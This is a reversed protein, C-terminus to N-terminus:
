RPSSVPFADELAARAADLEQRLAPRLGDAQAWDEARVAHELQLLVAALRSAALNASGGRLRHATALASDSDHVALADELAGVEATAERVFDRVVDALASGATRADMRQLQALLEPDLVGTPPRQTRATAAGTASKQELWRGTIEALRAPDVPKSVYDDMGADLCRQQDEPMASATMAVIPTIAGPPQGARIRRTAELGDMTPMQVDMLVLDYGGALVATVAQGGDPLVDVGDGRYGLH